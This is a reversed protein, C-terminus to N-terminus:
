DDIEETPSDSIEAQQPEILRRGCIFKGTNTKKTVLNRRAKIDLGFAKITLHYTMWKQAWARYALYLQQIQIRDGDEGTEITCERLFAGIVDVEDRYEMLSTEVAKPTKLGREYWKAAGELAFNLIGPLEAKLQSPLDANKEQVTEGFEIIKMRRWFSNGPDRIDPKFNGTVWLKFQPLYDFSNQMLRRANIPEEGTLKKIVDEDFRDTQGVEVATALRAGKLRALHEDATQMARKQMLHKKDLEGAYPGVLMRMVNLWTSKGTQGDGFLMFFSQEKVEGTLCYGMVLQMYEFMELDKKVGWALFDKFRPCDAKPDFTIPVHRTYLLQPDHPVMEGTRLNLVGNRVPLIDVRQDLDEPVVPIPKQLKVLTQLNAFAKATHLKNAFGLYQKQKEEDGVLFSQRKIEAVLKKWKDFLSGGATRDEEWSSGNWALFSGFLACYRIVSGHEAIFVDVTELDNLPPKWHKPEGDYGLAELPDSEGAKAEPAILKELEEWPDVFVLEIDGDLKHYCEWSDKGESVCAIVVHVDRGLLHDAKLAASEYGARDRDAVIIVTRFAALTETYEQQWNTAGHPATTALEGLRRWPDCDKEGEVLYVARPRGEPDRGVADLLAPLNYLVLPPADFWTCRAAYAEDDRNESQHIWSWRKGKSGSAWEFWGSKLGIVVNKNPLRRYYEFTKQGDASAFRDKYFIPEGEKNHYVYTATPEYTVWEDNRKFSKNVRRGPANGGHTNRSDAHFEHPKLGLAAAIDKNVAGCAHCKCRAGDGMDTIRLSPKSDQHVPCQCDAYTQKENVEFGKSRLVDLVYRYPDVKRPSPM